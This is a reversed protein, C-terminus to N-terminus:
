GRARIDFQLEAGLWFFAIAATTGFIHKYRCGPHRLGQVGRIYVVEHKMLMSAHSATPMVDM